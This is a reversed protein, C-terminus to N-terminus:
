AEEMMRRMGRAMPRGSSNMGTNSGMETESAPANEEPTESPAESLDVNIPTVDWGTQDATNVTATIILTVESGPSPAELDAVLAPDIKLNSMEAM